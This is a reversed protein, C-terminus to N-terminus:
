QVGHEVGCVINRIGCQCRQNRSVAFLPHFNADGNLRRIEADMEMDPWGRSQMSAAIRMLLDNRGAPNDPVKYGIESSDLTPREDAIQRLMASNVRCHQDIHALLGLVSVEDMTAKMGQNDIIWAPERRQGCIPLNVATPENDPTVVTQTAKPFVEVERRAKKDFCVKPLRKRLAVLYEHMQRASIPEDVFVYVHLGRSKSRFAAARTRLRERVQMVVDEPMDPWDIDLVGWSCTSDAKVPAVGISRKGELHAWALEPTLPGEVTMVKPKVKGSEDKEAGKANLEIHRKEYGDWLRLFAAATENQDM